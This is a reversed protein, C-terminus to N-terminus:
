AAVELVPVKAARREEGVHRCVLEETILDMFVATTACTSCHRIHEGPSDDYSRRARYCSDCYGDGDDDYSADERYITDGCECCNEYTEYWCDECLAGDHPTPRFSYRTRRDMLMFEGHGDCYRYTEGIAECTFEDGDKWVVHRDNCENPCEENVFEDEDDEITDDHETM